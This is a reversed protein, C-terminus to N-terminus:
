APMLDLKLLSQIGLSEIGLQEKLEHIAGWENRRRATIPDADGFHKRAIRYDKWARAEAVQIAEVMQKKTM